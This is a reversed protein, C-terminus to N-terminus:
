AARPGFRVRLGSLGVSFLPRAPLWNLPGAPNLQWSARLPSVRATGRLPTRVLTTGLLQWTSTALPLRLGARAPTTSLAAIPGHEDRASTPSDFTASEKPIGWLERGGALSVQSDVWIRAVSVGFRRGRRVLVAAALEHYALGPPRYAAFVTGVLVRGRVTVPRVPLPPLKAADALWVSLCASGHLLWPEPPYTVRGNQPTRPRM